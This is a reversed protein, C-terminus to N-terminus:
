RKKWEVPEPTRGSPTLFYRNVKIQMAKRLKVYDNQQHEYCEDNEEVAEDTRM